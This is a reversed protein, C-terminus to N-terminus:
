TRRYVNLSYAHHVIDDDFEVIRQIDFLRCVFVSKDTEGVVISELFDGLAASISDDEASRQQWLDIQILTNRAAVNGDGSLAIRDGLQDFYTVYPYSTGPPAIDRYVKSGIGDLNANVIALRIAAAVTTM